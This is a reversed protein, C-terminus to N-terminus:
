FLLKISVILLFIAIILRFKEQPIKAVIKKAIQAGILSAILFVILSYTYINTLQAGSSLYTVLRVSDVMVLIIGSTSIYVEKPLNYASLVAGRVPGGVGFIGSMFGSLLGGGISSRKNFNIKFAPKIIIFVAYAILLYALAKTLIEEPFIFAYYAGIASAIVAPIGFALILKLDSAKKFIIVRWLGTFFHIIGVLLLTTKLPLFILVLPMMITSTGFGAITGIISAVLTLATIFVIDM